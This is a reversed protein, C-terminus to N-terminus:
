QAVATHRRIREQAEAWDSFTATGNAVQLETEALVQNHWDPSIFTDDALDNWITEMATLKEERTMKELDLTISM